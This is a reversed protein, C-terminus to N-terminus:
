KLLFSKTKLNIGQMTRDIAKYYDSRECLIIAEQYQDNLVKPNNFLVFMSYFNKIPIDINYLQAISRKTIIPDYFSVIATKSEDFILDKDSFYTKKEKLKAKLMDVEHTNSREHNIQGNELLVEYSNRLRNIQHSNLQKETFSYHGNLKDNEALRLKSIELRNFGRIGVWKYHLLAIERERSLVCEEDQLTVKLPSTINFHSGTSFYINLHGAFVSSKDMPYVREGKRTQEILPQNDQFSEKVMNFGKIQPMTIGCDQYEKLKGILDPHYILEDSDVCICWDPPNEMQENRDRILKAKFNSRFVEDIKNGSDYQVIEVEPYQKAIELTKDTSMNDVLVIKESFQRYYDLTYSILFEENFTIIYTHIRM